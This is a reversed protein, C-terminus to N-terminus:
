KFSKIINDLYEKTFMPELGNIPIYNKPKTTLFISFEELLQIALQKNEDGNYGSAVIIIHNISTTNYYNFDKKELGEKIQQNIDENSIFQHCKWCM